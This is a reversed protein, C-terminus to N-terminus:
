VAAEAYIPFSAKVATGRGPASSLEFKGGLVTTRQEMMALGMTKDTAQRRAAGADFGEGDDVIHMHVYGKAQLLEVELTSARAHRVVNSVAEKAIRYAASEVRFPPRAGDLNETFRVELASGETWEELHVRLVGVLGISDMGHPTLDRVLSQVRVIASAAISGADKVQPEVVERVSPSVELASLRMKLAGLLQAVDEHLERAIERREAEQSDLTTRFLAKLQQNTDTLTKLALLRQQIEAHLRTNSRKLESSRKRLRGLGGAIRLLREKDAFDSQIQKAMRHGYFTAGAVMLLILAGIIYEYDRQRGAAAMQQEFNKQQVIAVSHRLEALASNLVAYRRDMTAMREGARDPQAARFYSFILRAEALMAEMAVGVADLRALLPAADGPGLNTSLEERLAAFKADFVTKASQMRETERAVDRSDFVDNGPANVAAALEGLNSYAYVREAWTQNAEVSRVYISMISHSLYLGASVAILDLAALVFYLYHWKPPKAPKGPSRAQKRELPRAPAAEAEPTSAVDSM